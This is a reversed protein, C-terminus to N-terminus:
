RSVASVGPLSAVREGLARIHQSMLRTAEEVDGRSITEFLRRHSAASRETYGESYGVRSLWSRILGCMTLVQRSLIQNNSMEAIAVHFGMDLDLYSEIEHVHVRMDEVLAALKAMSADTRRPIALYLASMEIAERAEILQPVQEDGILLGWRLPKAFFSLTDHSVFTGEGPRVELLGLVVLPRVGERVTNRGVGLAECLESETPVSDGPKLAGSLVLSVIKDTVIESLNQRRAIKILGAKGVGVAM